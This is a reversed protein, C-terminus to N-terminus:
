YKKLIQKRLDFNDYSLNNYKQCLKKCKIREEILYKDCDAYYLLSNLMKEKENM